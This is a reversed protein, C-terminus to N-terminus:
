NVVLSKFKHLPHVDQLSNYHFLRDPFLKKKPLTANMNKGHIEAVFALYTEFVYIIEMSIENPREVELTTSRAWLLGQKQEQPNAIYDCVITVGRKNFMSSLTATRAVLYSSSTCREYGSAWPACMYNMSYTRGMYRATSLFVNDVHSGGLRSSFNETPTHWVHAQYANICVKM